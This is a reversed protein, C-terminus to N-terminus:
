GALGLVFVLLRDLRQMESDKLRGVTQAIRSRRVTAPKDAMVQSRVRLGNSVEPDLSLRLMSPEVLTSTIPCIVVSDQDPELADSQIIVAPRPKGYDGALAAIVVDGRRM